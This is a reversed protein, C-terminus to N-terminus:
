VRDSVSVDNVGKTSCYPSNGCDRRKPLYPRVLAFWRYGFELLKRVPTVKAVSALRRYKPLTEWIELFAAVGVALSGDSRRAHLHRNVATADLGEAEASFEPRTIDVFDIRESGGCKRYHDIERSCLQCLGDYYVRLTKM